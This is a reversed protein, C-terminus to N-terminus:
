LPDSPKEDSYLAKIETSGWGRSAGWCFRATEVVVFSMLDVKGRLFKLLREM